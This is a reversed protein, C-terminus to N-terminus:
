PARRGAAAVERAARLGSRLAGEMLGSWDGATHEGAFHLSGVPAALLADDGPHADLGGASYAGRAWEDDSWSTLVAPEHAPELDDRLRTVRALWADPGARVELRELAGPSGAFCNLVPAVAGDGGTATWCWYRDPVSMVASAPSPAALAVHLKAAHGFEVRDLAARKWDPLLPTYPLARSLPLPLTVIVHDAALEGGDTRVGAPEVARVPTGLRVRAGLRGALAVALRQNGGAIRHSPLPDFAAAHELVGPALRESSQACSIEVRALVAEALEHPLELADVLEAVSRRDSTRAARAVRRGAAQLAATVVAVGRPERVYYSMGTDALALGHRRALRRLETYGELVFEAGREIVASGAPGELRESWVRGGVRERAELVLVDLGRDALEGAAALGALGAGIVITRGTGANV